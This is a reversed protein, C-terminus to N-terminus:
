FKPRNTKKSVFKYNIGIIAFMYVDNTTMDGRQQGQPKQGGALFNDVWISPYAFYAAADGKDTGAGGNAAAVAAPDAYSTSTDDLYDTFTFRFDYEFTLALNKSLNFKAGIGFPVCLSMRSYKNPYGPLGQGETGLPQLSYRKGNYVSTPNFYFGGIGGVFYASLTSGLAGKIGRVRYRNNLKEQIFYLEGVATFEILSTSVTINRSRRYIDKALMDSAYLQAYALGARASLFENVKYRYGGAGAYRTAKGNFDFFLDKAEEAGGGLESFMSTPGIGFWAEHRYRKWRQAETITSLGLLLFVFLVLNRMTVTPSFHQM